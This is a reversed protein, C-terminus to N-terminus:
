AHCALAHKALHNDRECDAHTAEKKAASASVKSVRALRHAAEGAATLLGLSDCAQAAPLKEWHRGFWAPLTATM